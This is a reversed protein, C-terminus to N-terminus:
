ASGGCQLSVSQFNSVFIGLFSVSPGRVWNRCCYTSRDHSYIFRECVSSHPFQSQTRATKIEPFVYISDQKCTCLYNSSKAGRRSNSVHSIEGGLDGRRGLSSCVTSPSPLDSIDASSKGLKLYFYATGFIEPIKKCSLTLVIRLDHM